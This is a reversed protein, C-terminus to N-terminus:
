GTFKGERFLRGKNFVFGRAVLHAVFLLERACYSSIGEARMRELVFAPDGGGGERGRISVCPAPKLTTTECRNAKTFNRLGAKWPWTERPARLCLSHVRFILNGNRVPAGRGREVGLGRADVRRNKRNETRKGGEGREGREKEEREM